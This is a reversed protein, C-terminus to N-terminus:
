FLKSSDLLITVPGDNTYRIEMHAQFVGSECVLGQERIKDMFYEYLAEAERPEAAGSYSPRRGMRADGLLTFQSVTLVRGGTDRLSLNMKGGSDPFIRLAAIKEALYAADAGTDGRAVGLYVLLGGSIGGRPVGDVRVSADRVRQVV